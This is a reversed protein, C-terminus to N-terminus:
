LLALIVVSLLWAAGALGVVILAEVVFMVAGGAVGPLSLWRRDRSRTM